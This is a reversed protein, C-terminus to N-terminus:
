KTNTKKIKVPKDDKEEKKMEQLIDELVNFINLLLIETTTGAHVDLIKTM